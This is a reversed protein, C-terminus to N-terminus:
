QGPIAGLRGSDSGLEDIDGQRPGVLAAAGPVLLVRIVARRHPKLEVVDPDNPSFIRDPPHAVISFHLYRRRRLAQRCACARRLCIMADEMGSESISRRARSMRAPSRARSERAM